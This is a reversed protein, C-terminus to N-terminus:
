SSSHSQCSPCYGWYIVEASDILYGRDDSAHLCPAEGVACPVDVVDGCSRCVLHHHNDGRAIEYRSPSGAPETRRLIGADTLTHLIDYVAQTSVTGLRDVVRARVTDADAHPRGEVVDLVALRAATVRLGADRLLDHHSPRM